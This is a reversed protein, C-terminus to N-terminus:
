TKTDTYTSTALFNSVPDVSAVDLVGVVDPLFLALFVDSGETVVGEVEGEVEGDGLLLSM